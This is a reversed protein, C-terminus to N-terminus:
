KGGDALFTNPDTLEGNVSMEFHLHVGDAKETKMTNGLEAIQQGKKVEDGVKVSINAISAYISRINDKHLITLFTTGMKDESISEVTGDYVAMVKQGETGKFDIAEHTTYYGMTPNKIATDATYKRLVEANELPMVFVMVDPNDVNDDPDKGEDPDNGEDPDVTPKDPDTVSPVDIVSGGQDSVPQNLVIALTVMTAIAIICAIMVIYYVNKKFFQAAKSNKYDKKM